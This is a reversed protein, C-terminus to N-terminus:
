DYKKKKRDFFSPLYQKLKKQVVDVVTEQPGVIELLKSKALAHTPELEVAKRFFSEARKYLKESYFLMGLAAFPEANWAELEAAKQLNQEAERKLLPSQAQCMGLLLYYSAKNPDLKVAGEVAKIALDYQRQAHLTKAKKYMNRAKEESDEELEDEPSVERFGRKEYAAKNDYDSLVEYARAISKLIYEGMNKVEPDSILAIKNAPFAQSYRQFAAEIEKLTATKKLGFLEFHDIERAKLKQYVQKIRAEFNAQEQSNDIMM